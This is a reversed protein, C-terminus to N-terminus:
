SGTQKRSKSYEDALQFFIKLKKDLEQKLFFPNKMAMKQKLKKKNFMTFKDSDLLRQYPTKPEDYEKKIKSGIRTKKKLKMVPTFYNWLPNWYVQYIENMMAVLEPNEVRVYGFLERVHTFNKQEVHANDNKKYPRRRVFEVPYLRETFYKHLEDNLFENGNDSAFGKLLFPLDYEIKQIQKQVTTAFKKWVARNETWGSYLDTMTISNAYDGEINTGCHAVTDSEIFGPETVEADLLKIPIKSKLMPVTTSLGRMKNERYPKLLRDITSPSISKLLKLEAETVSKYFPLWLPIAVIMKKSCIRNMSSWLEYVHDLIQDYKSVPGPKKRRPQIQNNLIRIAYKREYGCVTTFENLILTKMSKTSKQYRERIADLYARKVEYPM